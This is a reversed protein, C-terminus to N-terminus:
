GGGAGVGTGERIIMFLGPGGTPLEYTTVAGSEVDTLQLRLRGDHEQLTEATECAMPADAGSGDYVLCQRGTAAESATWIPVDGDYGAVWISNPDFGEDALRGATRTETENAYTLGGGEGSGYESVGVSVAPEGDPTLLLQAVIQRTYEDDRETTVQGWLGEKQVAERQNCSPTPSEGAGLLLCVRAGGDQTAAWIVAGEETAVARVSGPDYKGSAVLDSQWQQQEASLAVASGGSRGFALWGAGVGLLLAVVAALALVGLPTRRRRDGGAPEPVAEGEPTHPAVVETASVPQARDEPHADPSREEPPAPILPAQRRADDLERLRAAEAASLGGGPGFAKRQLARREEVGEDDAATM